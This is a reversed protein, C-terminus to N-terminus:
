QLGLYALQDSICYIYSYPILMPRFKMKFIGPFASSRFVFNPFGHDVAHARYGSLYPVEGSPNDALLEAM